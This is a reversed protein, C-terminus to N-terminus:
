PLAPRDCKRSRELHFRFSRLDGEIRAGNTSRHFQARDITGDDRIVQSDVTSPLRSWILVCRLAYAALNLEDWGQWNAFPQLWGRADEHCRPDDWFRQNQIRQPESRLIGERDIRRSM